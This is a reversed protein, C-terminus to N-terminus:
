NVRNGHEATVRIRAVLNDGSEDTLNNGSEDVLNIVEYKPGANFPFNTQDTYTLVTGVLNNGNEDTLNNGSEDVLNYETFVKDKGLPVNDEDWDAPLHDYPNDGTKDIFQVFANVGTSRFAM